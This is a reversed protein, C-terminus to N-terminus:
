TTRRSRTFDLDLGLVDSVLKAQALHRPVVEIGVVRSAGLRKMEVSFFGGNCGVDLVSMGDLRPPLLPRLREWLPLPYDRQQGFVPDRAIRLGDGLDIAHFWPALEGIRREVAAREM